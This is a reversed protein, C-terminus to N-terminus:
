SKGKPPLRLLILDEGLFTEEFLLLFGLVEAELSVREHGWVEM